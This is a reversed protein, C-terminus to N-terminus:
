SPRYGLGTCAGKMEKGVCVERGESLLSTARREEGTREERRREGLREQGGRGKWERGEQGRGEERKEVLWM